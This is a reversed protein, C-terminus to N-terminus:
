PKKIIKKWFIKDIFSNRAHLLQKLNNMLILFPCPVLNQHVNEAHSKWLFIRDVSLTKIGYRKEKELYWVFHTILNKNSCNIVDYVKLNMKSFDRFCYSILPFLPPSSFAFIQVDRYCFSRKLIKANEITKSPSNNLSFYFKSFFYHACAKLGENLFTDGMLPNWETFSKVRREIREM